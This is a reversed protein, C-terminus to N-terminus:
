TEQLSKRVFANREGVDEGDKRKDPDHSKRTGIRWRWCCLMWEDRFNIANRPSGDLQSLPVMTMGSLVLARPNFSDM